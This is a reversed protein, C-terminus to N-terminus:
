NKVLIAAEGFFHKLRVALGGPGFASGVYGYHGPMFDYICLKGIQVQQMESLHLILVYTGCVKNNTVM